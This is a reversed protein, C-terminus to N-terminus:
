GLHIKDGRVKVDEEAKLFMKKSKLHFSSKVLTRMRGTQLQSLESVTHYVNKAKQIVTQAATEFREMTVNVFEFKGAFQEGSVNANEIKINAKNAEIDIEPSQLELQRPKLTFASQIRGLTNLIGLVIGSQSTIGVTKGNMLIDKAAYFNINGKQSIFEIDGTGLNVKAKGEKEDYEFLLESKKSYVRISQEDLSDIIQARTGGSLDLSKKLEVEKQSSELIGIVYLEDVDEGMVLVSDGPVLRYPTPVAMQAWLERVQSDIEISLLIQKGSEEVELVGAPGFYRTTTMWPHNESITLM